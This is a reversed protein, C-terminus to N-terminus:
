PLVIDVIDKDTQAAGLTVGVTLLQTLSLDVLLM